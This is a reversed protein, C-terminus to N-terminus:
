EEWSVVPKYYSINMDQVLQTSWTFIISGVHATTHAMEFVSTEPSILIAKPYKSRMEMALAADASPLIFGKFKDSDFSNESPAFNSDPWGEIWNDDDCYTVLTQALTMAHYGNTTGVFTFPSASLFIGVLSYWDSNPSVGVADEIININKSNLFGSTKINYRDSGFAYFRGEEEGSAQIYFAFRAESLCAELLKQVLIAEAYPVEVEVSLGNDEEIINFNPFHWKAIWNLFSKEFFSTTELWGLEANTLVVNQFDKLRRQIYAAEIKTNLENEISVKLKVLPNKSLKLAQNSKIFSNFKNDLISRM